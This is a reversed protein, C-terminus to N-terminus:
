KSAPKIRPKSTMKSDMSENARYRNLLGKGHLTSIASYASKTIVKKPVVQSKRSPLCTLTSTKMSLNLVLTLLCILIITRAIEQTVRANREQKERILVISVYLIPAVTAFISVIGFNIKIAM